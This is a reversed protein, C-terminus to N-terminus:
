VVLLHGNTKLWARRRKYDPLIAAVADWYQRSHNKHKLHVLEHVVVYDVIELPALVLRLNFNLNGRISCSGWRTRLNKIRVEQHRLGTQASYVTLRQRIIARAQQRYWAEFVGAAKPQDSARLKFNGDLLLPVAQREVLALIYPQGLYLFIEGAQYQRVPILEGQSRVEAQKGQIWASKQAVLAEIQARTARAPARVILRGQNDIELAFTRRKSRIIQDIQLV